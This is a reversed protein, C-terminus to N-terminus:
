AVCRRVMSHRYRGALTRQPIKAETPPSTPVADNGINHPLRRTSVGYATRDLLEFSPGARRWGPPVIRLFDSSRMHLRHQPIRIEARLFARSGRFEDDLSSSRTHRPAGAQRIREHGVVCGFAHRSGMGAARYLDRCAPTAFALSNNMVVRLQRPGGLSCGPEVRTEFGSSQEVTTESSWSV